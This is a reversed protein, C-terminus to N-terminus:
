DYSNKQFLLIQHFVPYPLVMVSRMILRSLEPSFSPYLFKIEQATKTFTLLYIFSFTIFLSSRAKSLHLAGSSSYLCWFYMYKLFFYCLYPLDNIMFSDTKMAFPFPSIVIYDFNQICILLFFLILFM